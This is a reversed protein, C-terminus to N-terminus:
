GDKISDPDVITNGPRIRLYTSWILYKLTENGWDNNAPIYLALGVRELRHM